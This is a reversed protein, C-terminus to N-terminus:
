HDFRSWIAFDGELIDVKIRAVDVIVARARVYKLTVSLHSSKGVVNGPIM